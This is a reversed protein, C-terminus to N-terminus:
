RRWSVGFGLLYDPGDSGLRRALRADLQFDPGLLHAVGTQFTLTDPGGPEERNFGYLEFFASTSGSLGVGVVASGFWSDFREGGSEPRAVGLNSGLSVTETLDWALALVLSPQWSSSRFESNGTPVTTTAILGMATRGWFGLGEGDNLELKAGITSDVFGSDDGGPQDLWLYTPTGLRLEFSRTIGYRVLLEGVTTESSTDFDSYTGGAELQLTGRGVAAASETFDPRDTVLPDAALVPTAGAAALFVVAIGTTSFRKIV